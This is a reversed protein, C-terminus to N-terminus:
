VTEFPTVAGLANLYINLDGKEAAKVVVPLPANMASRAKARASSAAHSRYVWVIIILIFSVGAIIWIRRRRTRVAADTSTAERRIDSEAGSSRPKETPQQSMPDNCTLHTDTFYLRNHLNHCQM